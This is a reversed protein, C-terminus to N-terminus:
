ATKRRAVGVLGLLGSGFLWVAAPVPVASATYQAFDGGATGYVTDVSFGSATNSADSILQFKWVEYYVAGFFGGWSSGVQGGSVITGAYDTIGDSNVDGLSTLAKGALSGAAGVFTGSTFSTIVTNGNSVCGTSTCNSADNINWALDFLPFGSVAGLRGTPTFSVNGSGDITGTMSTGGVSFNDGSVTIGLVGAYGDGGIGGGYGNATTANDTMGQSTPSPLGGFSFSSNYGVTSNGFKFSTGGYSTVNTPTTLINLNYSGSAVLGASAATSLTLACVGLAATLGLHIATKKM